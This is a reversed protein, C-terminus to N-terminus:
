LVTHCKLIVTLFIRMSHEMRIWKCSFLIYLLVLLNLRSLKTPIQGNNMLYVVGFLAEHCWSIIMVVTTVYIHYLYWSITNYVWVILCRISASWIPYLGSFKSHTYWWYSIRKIYCVQWCVVSKLYPKLQRSSYLTGSKSRLIESKCDLIDQYTYLCCEKHVCIHATYVQYM